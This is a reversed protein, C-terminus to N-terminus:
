DNVEKGDLVDRIITILTRTIMPKTVYAKIGCALAKDRDINESHGTCMIIKQGPKLELIKKAFAYGTMGPMTMDTLILDFGLPTTQFDDFALAGDIHTKVRYGFDELLAQTSSRISEDDDVVMISERGGKLAEKQEILANMEQDNESIPLFIQFITGKDQESDVNIHGNHKNIIGCVVALGLGTGKDKEKTTFYPDFIKERTTSDMGHGTDRVELKIYNGPLLNLGPVIQNERITIDELKIGLTGGTEMMAHYANTCLNMIVQHIQTPDALVAAESRIRQEIRITSPISSRILKLAEKLVLCIKLPKKQPASKRSIALIQQVLETARKACQLIQNIDKAARDPADLHRIALQSFGFIGSLINNFDHAIGGALAGIAEMKHAQLLRRELANKEQDARKLDTIDRGEAILFALTHHEDVVPKLSFDIARIEKRKSLNTTEYRVVEGKAASQVSAKLREQLDTDHTWVPTDWFFRDMIDSEVCGIFDLATQNIERIEGQPSLIASFQFSHNFLAKFKLESKELANRTKLHNKIESNLQDHYVDRKDMFSNFYRALDGLEDPADYNMRISNNEISGTKLKAIFRKLPRTISASVLFSAMGSLLFLTIISAIFIARVTYLPKFIEEVYGSSVVFWGYEPLHDFLVIKERVKTEDPNKWFYTLKGQKKQIMTKVFDTPFETIELINTKPLKPHVLLNAAEDLIYAYGTKGFRYSLVSTKFDDIDILDNFEERYSSASIIWDLPKFYTMYLAKPREKTEGPNKWFYELFGDKIRIQEKIFDYGSLDTGEVSGKPHVLATGKSDICYIYGSKGITQCLFAEKISAMAQSKTILGSRHKNYYYEAIDLNKEAIARLRNRISVTASTQIMTVLADTTNKLEREISNELVQKVQVYVVTGMALIIPLSFLLFSVLLKNKIKLKRLIM